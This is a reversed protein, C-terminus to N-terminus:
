THCYRQQSRTQDQGIIMENYLANRGSDAFQSDSSNNQVIMSESSSALADLIFGETTANASVRDGISASNTSTDIGHFDNTSISKKTTMVRKLAHLKGIVEDCSMVLGSSETLNDRPGSTLQLEM